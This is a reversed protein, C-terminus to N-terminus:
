GSVLDGSIRKKSNEYEKKLRLSENRITENKSKMGKEILDKIYEYPYNKLTKYIEEKLRDLPAKLIISRTSVIEKLSEIASPNGIEGLAKVALFKLSFDKSSLTRKKLIKILEPVIEKVRFVGSLAIAHSIIERSGSNFFNKLPKIGNRDERRLLYKVAEIRIKYNEHNCYKRMYPLVEEGGCENMIFLMNRKVFWRNDDLKKIAEPIVKDRFQTILTIIFRRITQSEEEILADILFPIIREGYYENLTIADERMLRGVIRYSEVVLSIFEKSNIYKIASSNIEPFIGKNLNEEIVQIINLAERYQGIEIYHKIYAKMKDIFYEYDEFPFFDYSILELLINSFSNEIFEDNFERNLEEVKKHKDQSSDFEIIKKLEKQYAKAVFSEFQDNTLLEHIDRSLLLDDVVITKELKQERVYKKDLESFKDLLNKLTEPITLNEENMMNLFSIISDIDIDGLEEENHPVRKHIYKSASTLFKRKLNPNLFSIFSTLRKLEGKSLSGDSNRRIYTTIVREYTDEKFKGYPTRNLIESFNKPPIREINASSVDGQLKGELLAYVYKRWLEKQTEPEERKGEEFSFAGYDVLGIRIHTFNYEKIENEVVERSIDVPNRTLLRHFEYLEEVTLGHIFTVYAFDLKSLKLAFEKYVPNEKDLYGDDVILTDKAIALTFEPRLELLRQLLEFAKNLSRKLIPHEKPYIAVNRSLINLEIISDGLLKTDIPIKETGEPM